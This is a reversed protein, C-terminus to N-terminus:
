NRLLAQLASLSFIRVHNEFLNEHDVILLFVPM